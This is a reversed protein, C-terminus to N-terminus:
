NLINNMEISESVCLAHDWYLTSRSLPFAPIPSAPDRWDMLAECRQESGCGCGTPSMNAEWREACAYWAYYTCVGIIIHSLVCM